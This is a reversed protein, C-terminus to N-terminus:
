FTLVYGCEASFPPQHITNEFCGRNSMGFIIGHRSNADVNLAVIGNESKSQHPGSCAATEIFTSAFRNLEVEDSPWV